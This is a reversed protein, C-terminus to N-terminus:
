TGRDESDDRVVSEADASRAVRERASTLLNFEDSGSRIPVVETAPEGPAAGMVMTRVPPHYGDYLEHLTVHLDRLANATRSLRNTKASRHKLKLMREHKVFKKAPRQMNPHVWIGHIGPERELADNVIAEVTIGAARLGKDRYYQESLVSQPVHERLYEDDSM